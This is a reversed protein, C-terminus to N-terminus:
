HTSEWQKKWEDMKGLYQSQNKKFEQKCAESDLYVRKGDVEVYQGAVLGKEGCVPCRRQHEFYKQAGDDIKAAMRYTTGPLGQSSGGCGATAAFVFIALVMGIIVFGRGKM